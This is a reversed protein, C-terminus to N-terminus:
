ARHHRRRLFAPLHWYDGLNSAASADASSAASQPLDDEHLSPHDVLRAPSLVALESQDDVSTEDALIGQDLHAHDTPHDLDIGASIGCRLCSGTSGWLHFLFGDECQLIM